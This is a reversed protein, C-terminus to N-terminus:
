VASACGACCTVLMQPAYHLAYKVQVPTMGEFGMETVVQLVEVSLAPRCANFLTSPAAGTTRKPVAVPATSAQAMAEEAEVEM